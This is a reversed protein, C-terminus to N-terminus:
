WSLVGPVGLTTRPGSCVRHGRARSDPVDPAVAQQNMMRMCALVAAARWHRRCMGNTDAVIRTGATALCGGGEARTERGRCPTAGGGRGGRVRGGMRGGPAEMSGPKVSWVAECRRKGPRRLPVGKQAANIAMMPRLNIGETQSAAATRIRRECKKPQGAAGSSTSHPSARWV